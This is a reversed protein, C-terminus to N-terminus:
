CNEETGAPLCQLLVKFMAMVPEKGTMELECFM